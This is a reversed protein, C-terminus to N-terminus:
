DVCVEVCGVEIELSELEIGTDGIGGRGRSFVFDAPDEVPVPSLRGGAEPPIALPLDAAVADLAAAAPRTVPLLDRHPALVLREGAALTRRPAPPAAQPQEEESEPAAAAAPRGEVHVGGEPGLDVVRLAFAGARGVLLVEARRLVLVHGAVVIRSPTSGAVLRCAGRLIELASEGPQDDRVPGARLVTGDAAILLLAGHAVLRAGDGSATAVPEGRDGAALAFSGAGGLAAPVAVLPGEMSGSDSAASVPPVAAAVVLLAVCLIPARSRM